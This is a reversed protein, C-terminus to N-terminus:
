SAVGACQDCREEEPWLRQGCGCLRHVVDDDTTSRSLLKSDNRVYSPSVSDENGETVPVAVQEDPPNPREGVVTGCNICAERLIVGPPCTECRPKRPSQSRDGGHQREALPKYRAQAWLAGPVTDDSCNAKFAVYGGVKRGAEDTVVQYKKTLAAGPAADKGFGSEHARAVTSPSMGIDAALGGRIKCKREPNHEHDEICPNWRGKPDCHTATCRKSDHFDITVRVYGDEDVGPVDVQQGPRDHGRGEYVRFITFADVIREDPSRAPNRLTACLAEREGKLQSIEAQLQRVMARSAWAEADDVLQAFADAGHRAVYDDLGNKDGNPEDPLHVIYVLAGRKALFNALRRLALAVNPNRWADSDFVLYCERGDLTPFIPEWDPLAQLGSAEGDQDFAFRSHDRYAWSFVGWINVACYGLGAACDAKKAGETFLLKVTADGIHKLCRRPVDLIPPQGKPWMYKHLRGSGDVWGGDPKFAYRGNQGFTDSLPIVYGGGKVGRRQGESFGLDLLEIASSVSWSGRQAIVEDTIASARLEGLHWEALTM